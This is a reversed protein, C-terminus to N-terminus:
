SYNFNLFDVFLIKTLKFCPNFNWLLYHPFPRVPVKIQFIFSFKLFNRRRNVALDVNRQSKIQEYIYAKLPKM